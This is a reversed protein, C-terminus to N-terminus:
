RPNFTLTAIDQIFSSLGTFLGRKSPEKRVPM